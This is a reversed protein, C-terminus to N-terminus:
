SKLNEQALMKGVDSHSNCLGEIEGSKTCKISLM